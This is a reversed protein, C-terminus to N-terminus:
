LKLVLGLRFDELDARRLFILDEDSSIWNPNIYCNRVDTELSGKARTCTHEDEILLLASYDPYLKGIGM